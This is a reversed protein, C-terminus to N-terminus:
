FKGLYLDGYYVEFELKAPEIKGVTIVAQAKGMIDEGECIWDGFHLDPNLSSMTLECSDYNKTITMTDDNICDEDAISDEETPEIEDEDDFPDGWFDTEQEEGSESCLKMGDPRFVFICLM